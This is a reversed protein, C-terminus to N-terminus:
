EGIRRLLPLVERRYEGETSGQPGPTSQVRVAVVGARPLVHIDTGLYGQAAFGDEFLWWLLGCDDKFAQASTTSLRVWEESVVQRPPSGDGADWRGGHLMMVGIRAMDRSTTIMDAYTWAHGAADLRLQTHRMGLPAFLRRAAYDQIPEGAAADLIPSLLQVAENSYSFQAGVPADPELAIVHANKDNIFGVSTAGERRNTNTLGSTHNLLHRITVQARAGERWSPIFDSVAQDLSRIKGDDLLMGVLISAISKTSSMANIPPAYRDSHWEAIIRGDKVLLCADAGGERCLQEYAAIAEIDLPPGLDAPDVVQWFDDEPPPAPRAREAALEAILRAAWHDDDLAPLSEFADIRAQMAGADGLRSYLSAALALGEARQRASADAHRAVEDAIAAGQRWDGIRALRMAEALRQDVDDASAPARVAAAASLAILVAAIVPVPNM